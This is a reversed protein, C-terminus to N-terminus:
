IGLLVRETAAAAPDLVERGAAPSCGARLRGSYGAPQRVNWWRVGGVHSHAGPGAGWWDGGQWYGLNHRCQGGPRSWNSVEYWAFGAASLAADAAEYRGALVDDDPPPVEGG